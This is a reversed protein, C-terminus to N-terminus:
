GEHAGVVDSNFFTLRDHAEVRPQPGILRRILKKNKRRRGRRCTVRKSHNVSAEQEVLRGGDNM